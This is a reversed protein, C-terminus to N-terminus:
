DRRHVAELDDAQLERFAAELAGRLDDDPKMRLVHAQLSM